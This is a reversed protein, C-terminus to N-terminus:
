VMTTTNKNNNTISVSNNKSQENKDDEEDSSLTNLYEECGDDFTREDDGHRTDDDDSVIISSSSSSSHHHKQQPRAVGSMAVDGDLKSAHIAVNRNCRHLAITASMTTTSPARQQRRHFLRVLTLGPQASKDDSATCFLPQSKYNYQSDYGDDIVAHDDILVSLVAACM